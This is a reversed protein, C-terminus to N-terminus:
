NQDSCTARNADSIANSYNNLNAEIHAQRTICQALLWKYNRSEATPVSHSLAEQGKFLDPQLAAAQAIAAQTSLLEPLDGVKEFKIRASDLLSLADGVRAERVLKSADATQQRAEM